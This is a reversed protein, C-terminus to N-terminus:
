DPLKDNASAAAEHDQDAQQVREWTFKFRGTYEFDDSEEIVLYVEEKTKRNEAHFRYPAIREGQREGFRPGLRMGTGVPSVVFSKEIMGVLPSDSKAIRSKVELWDISGWAFAGQILMVSLLLIRIPNKM